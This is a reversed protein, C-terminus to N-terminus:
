FFLFIVRLAIQNAQWKHAIWFVALPKNIFFLVIMFQTKFNSGAAKIEFLAAGSTGANANMIAVLLLGGIAYGLYALGAATVAKVLNVVMPLVKKKQV